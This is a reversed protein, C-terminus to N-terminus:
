SSPRGEEGGRLLDTAVRKRLALFRGRQLGAYIGLLVLAVTLAGAVLWGYDLPRHVSHHMLLVGALGAAVSWGTWRGAILRKFDPRAGIVESETEAGRALGDKRVRALLRGRVWAARLPEMPQPPLALGLEATVDRYEQLAQACDECGEVHRLVHGLESQDLIELAAAPLMEPVGAHNPSTNM